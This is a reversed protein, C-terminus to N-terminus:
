IAYRGFFPHASPSWPVPAVVRIQVSESTALRHLRHRLFVGHAPQSGKQFPPSILKGISSSVAVGNQLAKKDSLYGHQHGCIDSQDLVASTIQRPAIVVRRGASRGVRDFRATLPTPTCHRSPLCRSPRRLAVADAAGRLTSSARRKARALPTLKALWM